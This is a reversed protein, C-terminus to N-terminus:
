EINKNLENLILLKSVERYYQEESMTEIEYYKYGFTKQLQADLILMTDNNKKNILENLKLEFLNDIKKNFIVKTLESLKLM